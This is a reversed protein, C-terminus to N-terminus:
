PHIRKRIWNISLINAIIFPYGYKRTGKNVKNWEKFNNNIIEYTDILLIFICPFFLKYKINDYSNSNINKRLFLVVLYLIYSAIFNNKNYNEQVWAADDKKVFIQGRSYGVISLAELLLYLRKNPFSESSYFVNSLLYIINPFNYIDLFWFMFFQNKKWESKRLDLNKYYYFLALASLSSKTIRYIM